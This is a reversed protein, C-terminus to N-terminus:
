NKTCQDHQKEEKHFQILVLEYTIITGAVSLILKRTLYFFRMGTLAITDNVVHESFRQVETCWNGNPVARLVYIPKKSEDYIESSYMSVAITRSILFILSFWFYIAHPISVKTNLSHLLQVSIFLLNNSFALLTIQSIANDVTVCLASLKRYQLRKLEWFDESM